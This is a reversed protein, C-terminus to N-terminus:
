SKSQDLILDKVQESPLNLAGYAGAAAARLAPDTETSNVLGYIAEVQETLLLNANIKASLALSSFADLRVANDAQADLALVAIARQAEPSQLHALVEAALVQMGPDSNETVGILASQAGSLQVVKNRVLALKYMAKVARLAYAAAAEAGIEDAAQQSVAEALNTIILKSGVFNNVPNAEAFAIAASYRVKRDSFSLAKALPQETGVHVLLSKEGANVALAEVVGLAVYADNDNIARELAQHLYEAGATTAYTMADAHGEGFFAPMPEGVSEARFFAAIWLGIAKGLSPNAKLTWECARMAMLEDFYGKNVELRNLAQSDADWFWLNGFDYEAAVALSDDHNYYNEGLRFFLEAAPIKLAGGDIQEIANAAQAKIIESDATELEYKLYPLPEYYGIKGLARIIEAKVAINKTQLAAALPRIAPRGIKPLAETIYALENARDPDAMAGLMQPIAYEGANRLRQEAAIRGKMTTSLRQIEQSIIKPDTRRIYRGEEILDLVEGSIDKLEDSDAHMKLLLRYGEQNEEALELLVTPDPQSEVIQEAHSKALELRGIKTYHLFDNWDEELDALSTVSCLLLGALLLSTKYRM